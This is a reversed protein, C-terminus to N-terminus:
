AASQTIAVYQTDGLFEDLLKSRRALLADRNRTKVHGYGRLKEPLKALELATAYNDPKLRACIETLDAEYRTLDEREAQREKTLAFIDLPTGRLRKLKALLRFVPLVWPGLEWKKAKGTTPDVSSLLPPALHFRLSYNGKFQEALRAQFTGNTYLRAVEYEDKNAMLKFLQQAVVQTLSDEDEPNSDVARVTDIRDRYRRAYILSQYASLRTFRDEILQDLTLDPVVEQSERPLLSEVLKPQHAFRRGLLFAHKNFDVAVANVLSVNWAAACQASCTAHM